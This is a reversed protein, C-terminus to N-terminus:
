VLANIEEKFDQVLCVAKQYKDVELLKEMMVNEIFDLTLPHAQAIFDTISL